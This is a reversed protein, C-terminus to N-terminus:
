SMKKLVVTKVQQILNLFPLKVSSCSEFVSSDRAKGRIQKIEELFVERSM